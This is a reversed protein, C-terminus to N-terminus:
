KALYGSPLQVHPFTSFSPWLHQPDASLWFLGAFDVRYVMMIGDDTALTIKSMTIKLSLSLSLPLTPETPSVCYLVLQEGDPSIDSMDTEGFGHCAVNSSTLKCGM